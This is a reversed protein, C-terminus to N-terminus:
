GGCRIWLREYSRNDVRRIPVQDLRVVGPPNRDGDARQALLCDRYRKAALVRPPCWIIEYTDVQPCAVPCFAMGRNRPLRVLGFLLEGVAVLLNRAIFRVPQIM